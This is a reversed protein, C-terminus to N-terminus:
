FIKFDAARNRSKIILSIDMYDAFMGQKQWIKCSRKKKIHSSAYYKLIKIPCFNHYM